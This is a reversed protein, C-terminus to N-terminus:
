LCHSFRVLLSWNNPDRLTMLGYKRLASDDYMPTEKFTYYVLVVINVYRSDDDKSTEETCLFLQSCLDPESRMRRRKKFRWRRVDRFVGATMSTQERRYLNRVDFHCGQLRINVSIIWKFRGYPGGRPGGAQCCRKGPFSIRGLSVTTTM